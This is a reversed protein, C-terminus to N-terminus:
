EQGQSGRLDLEIEVVTMDRRGWVICPQSISWSALDGPALFVLFGNRSRHRDAEPPNQCPTPEAKFEEFSQPLNNNGRQAM